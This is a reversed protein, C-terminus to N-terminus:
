YGCLNISYTARHKNRLQGFTSHFPSKFIDFHFLREYFNGLFSLSNCIITTHIKKKKRTSQIYPLPCYFWDAQYDIKHIHINLNFQVKSSPHYRDLFSDPAVCATQLQRRMRNKLSTFTLFFFLVLLRLSLLAFRYFFVCVNMKEMHKSIM